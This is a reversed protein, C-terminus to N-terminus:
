GKKTAIYGGWFYQDVTDLTGYSHGRHIVGYGKIGYVIGTENEVMYKGSMQPSGVDVRTYKKAVHVECTVGTQNVFTFGRKLMHEKTETEILKCLRELKENM